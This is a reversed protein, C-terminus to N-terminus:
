SRRLAIDNHIDTRALRCLLWEFSVCRQHSGSPVRWFVAKERLRCAVVAASGLMKGWISPKRHETPHSLIPSTTLPLRQPMESLSPRRRDTDLYSQRGMRSADSGLCAWRRGPRRYLAPLRLLSAPPVPPHNRITENGDAYTPGTCSGAM